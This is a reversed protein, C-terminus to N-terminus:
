FQQYYFSSGVEAVDEREEQRIKDAMTSDFAVRFYLLVIMEAFHV